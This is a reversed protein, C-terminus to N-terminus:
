LNKLSKLISEISVYNGQNIFSKIQLLFKRKMCYYNDIIINIYTLMSYYDEHEYCAQLRKIDEEM